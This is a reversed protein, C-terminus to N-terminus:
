MDCWCTHPMTGTAHPMTTCPAHPMQRMPCHVETLLGKLEPKDGAMLVDILITNSLAVLGNGQAMPDNTHKQWDDTSGATGFLPCERDAAQHGWNNCKSCRTCALSALPM